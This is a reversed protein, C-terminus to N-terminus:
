RTRAGDPLTAVACHLLVQLEHAPDAIGARTFAVAGPRPRQRQECLLQAEIERVAQGEDRRLLQMQARHDVLQQPKQPALGVNGPQALVSDSDPVFPRVLVALEPRHVALLPAGPSRRVAAGDVLNGAGDLLQPAIRIRAADDHARPIDALELAHREHRAVREKLQVDGGPPQRTLDILAAGIYEEAQGEVDRAVRQERVQERLLAVQLRALQDPRAAVAVQVQIM